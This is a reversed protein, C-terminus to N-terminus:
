GQLIHSWTRQIPDCFAVIFKLNQTYNVLHRDYGFQYRLSSYLNYTQLIRKPVKPDTLYRPTKEFLKSLTQSKPIKKFYNAYKEIGAVGPVYFEDFFHAEGGIKVKHDDTTVIQPHQTLYFSLATTGCKQAGINIIEPLKLSEPFILQSREVSLVENEPLHSKSNLINEVLLKQIKSNWHNLHYITGAILLVLFYFKRGGWCKEVM